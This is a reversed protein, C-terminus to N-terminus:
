QNISGDISTPGFTFIEANREIDEPLLGDDYVAIKYGQSKLLDIDKQTPLKGYAAVPSAHFMAWIYTYNGMNFLVTEEIDPVIYNLRKIFEANEVNKTWESEPGKTWATHTMQIEEPNFLYLSFLALIVTHYIVQYVKKPLVTKNIILWIFFHDFLVALAIFVLPSALFAFAPMKTAAMSYFAYVVVVLAVTGVRNTRNKISKWLLVLAFMILLFPLGYHLTSREMHYLWSGSHGEIIEFFHRSNLGYEYATEEPFAL